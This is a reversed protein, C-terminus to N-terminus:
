RWEQLQVMAGVVELAHVRVSGGFLAGSLAGTASQASDKHSCHSWQTGCQGLAGPDNAVVGWDLAGGTSGEVFGAAM